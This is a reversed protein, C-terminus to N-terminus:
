VQKKIKIPKGCKACKDSIPPQEFGCKKNECVVTLRENCAKCYDGFFTKKGCKPCEIELVLGCVNCKKWSEEVPARCKPCRGPGIPNIKECKPCTNSDGEILEDCYKCTKKYTGM